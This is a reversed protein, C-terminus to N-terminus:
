HLDIDNETDFYSNMQAGADRFTPVLIYGAANCGILIPFGASRFNLAKGKDAVVSAVCSVFDSFQADAQSKLVILSFQTNKSSAMRCSDITYREKREYRLELSALRPLCTFPGQDLCLNFSFDLLYWQVWWRGLSRIFEEYIWFCVSKMVCKRVNERMKACKWVNECMKCM